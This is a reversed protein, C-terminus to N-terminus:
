QRQVEPYSAGCRPTLSCTSHRSRSKGDCQAGIARGVRGFVLTGLAPSSGARGFVSTGLVLADAM